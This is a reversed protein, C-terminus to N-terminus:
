SNLSVNLASVIYSKDNETDCEAILKRAESQMYEIYETSHNQARRHKRYKTKKFYKRM